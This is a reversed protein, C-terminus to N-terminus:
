MARNQCDNLTRVPPPKSGSRSMPLSCLDSSKPQQNSGNSWLGDEKMRGGFRPNIARGGLCLTGKTRDQVCMIM